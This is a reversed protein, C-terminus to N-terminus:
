ERKLLYSQNNYFPCSIHIGAKYKKYKESESNLLLLYPFIRPFLHICVLKSFDFNFTEGAIHNNICDRGVKKITLSIKPLKISERRIEFEVRGMPNPCQAFVTNIDKMWKFYGKNQFTLIYPVAINFVFPCLKDPIISNLYVEGDRWKKLECGNNLIKLKYKSLDPLYTQNNKGVLFENCRISYNISSKPDPCLINCEDTNGWLLNNNKCYLYISPYISYFSAPCIEHINPIIFSFLTKNTFKYKCSKSPKIIEVQIIKDIADKPSGLVRLTKELVNLVPKIKKYRVKLKMYIPELLNPCKLILEDKFNADYLLALLYPYITYYADICFDHPGLQTETYAERGTKHFGCKKKFEKVSISIGGLRSCYEFM